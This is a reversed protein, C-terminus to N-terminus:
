VTQRRRRLAVIYLSGLVLAATAPAPVAAIVRNDINDLAFQPFFDEGVFSCTTDALYVCASFDVSTLAEAGLAGTLFHTFNFNGPVDAGSFVFTESVADGDLQVASVRLEGPAPTGGPIPVPAIFSTDFATLFFAGGGTLNMHMGDANLMFLFQGTANGPANGFVFAVSSDVGSFGAGSSTFDFAGSSITSSSFLTPTVDEFDVLAAPAPMAAAVGLIAAGLPARWGYKTM